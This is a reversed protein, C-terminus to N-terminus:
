HSAPAQALAWDVILRATERVLDPRGQFYHGAGKVAVIEKRQHNVADYLSRAHSPFCANDETGYIVLVPVTVSALQRPGDCNSADVSWQSLWSRLSTLHGLTAPAYNAARPDGWLTGTSRESPDIALDLFRPDATTGHVVFPLDDPAPAAMRGLAALQDRVWGTIRRNREVQAHRYRALFAASYPPGNRPLFMDLDPDREFPATEDRIAPDLWETYVLARGPHAMLEVLADVQPLHAATLDPPDGGPTSTITAHEAQGQYMAALGGGGSNGVLVIREYGEARLHGIAAAVDLVCNEMILASDNAIYRTNLGLADVGLESLPGLLYHGLFNSSPHILVVATAARGRGARHRSAWLKGALRAVGSYIDVRAGGAMPIALLEPDPRSM